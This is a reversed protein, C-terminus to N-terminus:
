TGYGHARRWNVIHLSSLFIAEDRAHENLPHYRYTGDGPLEVVARQLLIPSDYLKLACRRYAATQPGASPYFARKIDILVRREFGREMLRVIGDFTGAYGLVPDCVPREWHEVVCGTERRFARWGEVHPVLEPDLTAEDLDGENDLLIAQHVYTGRELVDASFWPASFDAVNAEALIKTVSPLPRGDLVYVHAAPDFTLRPDNMVPAVPASSTM